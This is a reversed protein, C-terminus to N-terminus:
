HFAAHRWSGFVYYPFLDVLHQHCCAPSNLVGLSDVKERILTHSEALKLYLGSVFCCIMLNNRRVLYADHGPGVLVLHQGLDERAPGPHVLSLYPPYLIDIEFDSVL